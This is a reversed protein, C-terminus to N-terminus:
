IKTAQELLENLRGIIIPSFSPNNNIIKKLLTLEAEDLEPEDNNVINIGINFVKLSDGTGPELKCTECAIILLDNYTAKQEGPLIMPEGKFSLVNNDLGKLKFRM